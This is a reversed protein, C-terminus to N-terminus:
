GVEIIPRRPPKYRVIEVNEGELLIGGIAPLSFAGVKTGYATPLQWSPCAIARISPFKEGSDDLKHVHGYFVFRPIEEGREAARMLVEAAIGAAATTWPRSGARGHHAYQCLVGGIRLRLEWDAANVELESAIERITAWGPGDHAETGWTMYFEDCMSRFPSLVQKAMEGQDFLSPLAQVTQHNNGEVADGLLTGIVRRGVAREKARNLFGLFQEGLWEQGPSWHITQKDATVFEPM